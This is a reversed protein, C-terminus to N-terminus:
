PHYAAKASPGLYGEAASLPGKSLYKGPATHFANMLRHQNLICHVQFAEDKTRASNIAFPLDVFNVSKGPM